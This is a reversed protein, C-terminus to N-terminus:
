RKPPPAERIVAGHDDSLVLLAFREVRDLDDTSLSVYDFRGRLDTYGDKYFRVQGGRLRAYAKVYVRPLPGGERRAVRVHGMAEILRVRLDHAYHAEARRVGGATAEVLVNQGRLAEPLPVVREEGDPALAVVDTRNPAVYGFRDSGQQVFPQRSFLLEVDMRYYSLRVEPVNQCTLRVAGDEVALEFAVEAAALAEHQREREAEAEAAGGGEGAAEDLQSIVTEFPRRWRDVPYDTWRAAIPRAAEPDESYFAAYAAMYDYQLRSPVADREVRAFAALGEEVRDQLLLYYALALRDAPELEARYCLLRTFRGWQRALRDNLIRREAGLRHARANVLPAYELHQYAGRRVPELDLLPSRLAAGLRGLFADEHELLERIRPPDDHHVAYAWLERQYAHRRTLLALAREYFDRERVRWAIQALDLEHVNARELFALVEDPEANQSVWPWSERDVTSPEAAVELTRPPAAAVLVEDTAAHVPFHPFDGPAPFYFSYEVSRTGYPALQVHLGRTKSGSLVSVAGRPVQLLLDLKQVSSTPNTLVVQCTYVVHVLLEGTLYNDRQEGGEWRYRDDPRFFNQSVLVATPEDSTEVPGVEEHFVLCPSAARLRMTAEDYAVDHEGAAFPLDLVALALMAETFGSAAEALHPSLFPGDGADEALDRWFANVPVLDPGTEEVRREYYDNEALEQTTELQRFLRRVGERDAVDRARYADEDADEEADASLMEFADDLAPGGFPDAPAPAASPAPPPAAAGRARRPRKKSKAPSASAFPDAGGPGAGGFPDSISLRLHDVQQEQSAEALQRAAALGLGDAADLASGALATQFRREEGEVDRPLLACLDRLHRAAAEREGELRRGLLVKEAANLRGHPWPRRFESLDAELLWRDVFTPDKKHALHPRVVDRFFDPDKFALFLHLEHCGRESLHRRKEADPLDAWRAVFSFAQLTADGSLTCLLSHAKAVTDLVEVRATALDEVVLEGGRDLPTVRRATAFHGDPDLGSTLRRDRPPTTAEDLPVERYVTSRADVALVRVLAADGLDARPVSVVGDADPRLNALVVSPAPLFDLTAFDSASAGGGGGSGQAAGEARGAPAAAKAYAGGAAPAQVDTATESLAWPNLILGPRPLLNGPYRRAYRRELVYRYEEGIERGSVYSSRGRELAVRRPEPPHVARGLDHVLSFAPAYRTAIVHVRAGEGAHAVRVRVAEDDADVAALHLPRRPSAELQRRAGALWPGVPAARAVRVPIRRGEPDLFLDYDGPPLGRLELFGDALALRGRHDAVYGDGRRELLAFRDPTVAEAEGAYPLRLDEGAAGHLAPPLYALDGTLTWQGSAGSSSASFAVLDDLPGLEIRGAPDTQLPANVEDTFDRHRLRVTVPAAGRPEGTKGLLHLVWGARTRSLHFAEIGDGQDIANVAVAHAAAVAQEEGTTVARVRGRVTFRVSALDDPVRLEHVSERDDHLAFGPVEQTTATGRLDTSVVVLRPEEVLAVSAPAGGIALSPRVLVRATAGAVLAERDVHIGCAFACTEARHEFRALTTLPGRRLLIRETGPRTTFPILITGDERSAYERGGMWITADPAPRDDEDLVTFVHGAAGVREVFRLEGKRILARSSIGNGILEVVFTGPRALSPLEFTRRVRRQPPDAYTFTQEEGAVLGDLDITTDVEEGHDLFYNLANVEFVKLVLTEAHKVDAVLTVPEDARWRTRNSPVLDVEVRDKIAQYRGPDDLVSYWREMDGIGHLIKAEAWLAKVYRDRVFTAYPETSDEGRLLRVLYDRVLPEDDGVPPLLTQARFDESLDATHHRHERLYGPDAYSTQRPLALYRMFRTPDHDDRERDLRLRHYLVHAKLSNFAPALPAVFEWLRDLYAEEVAPDSRWDLDPDPQRRVLQAAVWSSDNELRPLRSALADLQDRLLLGHIPHSGFGRSHRHELDAAVLEVLGPVDPRRLRGLLERRRDPDLDQGALWRLASDAYGSLDSRYDAVRRRFAERSVVSPDLRTPFSPKVGEVRRQHDFSLGLEVRLRERTPGPTDAYGLLAQRSEIEDVRRTRGHREIWKALLREVEGLEGRHQRHLCTYFYYDETGPILTALFAERDEALAFAEM